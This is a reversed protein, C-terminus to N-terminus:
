AVIQSEDSPPGVMPLGEPITTGSGYGNIRKNLFYRITLGGTLKKQIKEPNVGCM